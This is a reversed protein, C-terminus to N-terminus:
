AVMHESGGPACACRAPHMEFVVRLAALGRAQLKKVVNETKGMIKATEAIACDNLFRLELVRRQDRTLGALAARLADRDLIRTLITEAESSPAEIQEDTTQIVQRSSARQYDVLHNRAIRYLWAGFPVDRDQYRGVGTLAKVFVDAALDEALEASGAGRHLLYRRIGAAYRVYLAGFADRDGSRARRVIEALAHGGVAGRHAVTM